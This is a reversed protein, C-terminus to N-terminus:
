YTSQVKAERIKPKYHFLIEHTVNLLYKVMCITNSLKRTASHDLKPHSNKFRLFIIKPALEVAFTIM